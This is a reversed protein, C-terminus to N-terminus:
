RAALRSFARLYERALTHNETTWWPNRLLEDVEDSFLIQAKLHANKRTWDSSLQLCIRTMNQECRDLYRSFFPKLDSMGAEDLLSM